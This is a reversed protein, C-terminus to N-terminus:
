SITIREGRAIAEGVSWTEAFRDSLELASDAQIRDATTGIAM